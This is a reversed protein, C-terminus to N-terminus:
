EQFVPAVVAVIEPNVAPVYVTVTVSELLQSVVKVMVSTSGGRNTALIVPVSGNHKPSAFPAAVTVADPPVAGKVYEQFVPAVVAETLSKEM